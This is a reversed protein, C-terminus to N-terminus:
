SNCDAAAQDAQIVLENYKPDDFDTQAIEDEISELDDCTPADDGCGALLLGGVLTLAALLSRTASPTGTV